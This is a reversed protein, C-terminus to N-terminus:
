CCYWAINRATELSLRGSPTASEPLPRWGLVFLMAAVLLLQGGCVLFKATRVSLPNPRLLFECDRSTWRTTTLIWRNVTGALSQNYVPATAWTGPYYDPRGM